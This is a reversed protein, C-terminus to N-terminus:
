SCLVSLVSVERSNYLVRVEKPEQAWGSDNDNPNQVQFTFLVM